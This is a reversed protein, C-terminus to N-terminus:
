QMNLINKNNCQFSRSTYDFHDLVSKLKQKFFVNRDRREKEKVIKSKEAMKEINEEYENEIDGQKMSYYYKGLNSHATTKAIINKADKSVSGRQKEFVNINKKTRKVNRKFNEHFSIHVAPPNRKTSPYPRYKTTTRLNFYNQRGLKGLEFRLNQLESKYQELKDCMYDEYSYEESTTVNQPGINESQKNSKLHMHLNRRRRSNLSDSSRLIRSETANGTAGAKVTQSSLSPLQFPNKSVKNSSTSLRM